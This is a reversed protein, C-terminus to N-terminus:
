TSTAAPVVMGGPHGRPTPARWLTDPITEPSHQSPLRVVERIRTGRFVCPPGAGGSLLGKIEGRPRIMAIPDLMARIAIPAIRAKATGQLTSNRLMVTM